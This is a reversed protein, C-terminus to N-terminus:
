GHKQEERSKTAKEIAAVAKAGTKRWGRTPRGGCDGGGMMRAFGANTLNWRWEMKGPFFTARGLVTLEDRVEIVGQARM